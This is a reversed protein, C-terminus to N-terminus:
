TFKLKAADVGAKLLLTPLDEDGVAQAQLMAKGQALASKVSQGASLAAYFAPAFVVAALDGISDSMALVAAVTKTFVEAGKLTDCANFVLMAPPNDIASIVDNILSFDLQNSGTDLDEESDFSLSGSGGHGSFHVVHPEYENLARLLDSFTAATFPELHINDRNGSANIARRVAKLEIDTRIRGEDSPNAALFAIRLKAKAQPKTSAKPRRVARPAPGAKVFSVLGVTPTRKTAVKKAASPNDAYRVIKERHARVSSEKQYLWRSGDKVQGKNEVRVILHHRQLEDLANQIVQANGEIGLAEAIQKKSKPKSGRGYILNFVARRNKDRGLHRALQIITEEYDGLVNIVPAQSNM